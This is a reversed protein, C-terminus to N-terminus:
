VNSNLMEDFRFNNLQKSINKTINIIDFHPNVKFKLANNWTVLYKKPCNQYFSKVTALSFWDGLQNIGIEEPKKHYDYKQFIKWDKSYAVFYPRSSKPNYMPLVFYKQATINDTNKKPKPQVKSDKSLLKVEEKQWQKEKLKNKYNYPRKLIEQCLQLDKRAHKNLVIRKFIPVNSVNAKFKNLYTLAQKIKAQAQQLKSQM